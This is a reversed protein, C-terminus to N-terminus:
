KLTPYTQIRSTKHAIKLPEPIRGDRICNVVVEAAKELSIMNGVSIFIPKSSPQIKLALGVIKNRFIIPAKNDVYSDIEGCLLSKAVGITPLKLVVGVHSALGCGYPHALGQGDVLLIDPKIRLKKFAKFIPPAERFSLLTPIYPFTVKTKVTKIEVTELSTYSLVAVAVTARDDIYSVDVGAVFSINKPLIDKCVVQNALKLQM